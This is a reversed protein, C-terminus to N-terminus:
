RRQPFVVSRDASVDFTDASPKLTDATTKITDARQFCRNEDIDKNYPSSVFCRFYAERVDCQFDPMQWFAFFPCEQHESKKM